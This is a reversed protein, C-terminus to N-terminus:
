SIGRLKDNAKLAAELVSLGVGLQDSQHLLADTDKPFCAGGFGKQGDPGPVQWHTNGLRADSQAASSVNNWDMGAACCLEHMQNMFVVKTALFSNALYKVFAAENIRMYILEQPSLLANLIRAAAKTSSLEGGIIMRQQQQYEQSAGAGTVFEPVHVLNRMSQSWSEYFKWPATSHSIIPGDYGRHAIEDLVSRLASVDCGGDPLAPTPLCIFIADTNQSLMGQLSHSDQLAHDVLVTEFGKSKAAALVARGIVGVGIIGLKM